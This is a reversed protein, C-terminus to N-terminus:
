LKSLVLVGINEEDSKRVFVEVKKFFVCIL